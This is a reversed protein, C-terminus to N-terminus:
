RRVIELCIDSRMGAFIFTLLSWFLVLLAVPTNSEESRLLCIPERLYRRTCLVIWPSMLTSPDVHREPKKRSSPPSRGRLSARYGHNIAHTLKGGVVSPRSELRAFAYLICITDPSKSIPQRSRDRGRALRRLTEHIM